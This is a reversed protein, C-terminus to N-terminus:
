RRRRSRRSAAQDHGPAQRRAERVAARAPAAPQRAGGEAAPHVPQQSDGPVHRADGRDAEVRALQRYMAEKQLRETKAQTVAANLDALKQVVINERDELSIADNQERYHQLEDRRGRGGQATRRPARRALRSAEQSAMFQFELNQEIYNKALANAISRRWRRRRVPPLQRRGAPQQPDAHRDLRELFADIARSQAATEDAARRRGDDRRRRQGFSRRDVGAAARGLADGEASVEGSRRRVLEAHGVAEARRDDEAGARPEAPHQVADPLLGGQRRTRTSSRGQLQRREPERVRDPAARASRLDADCHVHLRHRWSCSCSCRRTGDLAAQRAGRAYDLLHPEATRRRIASAAAPRRRCRHPTPRPPTGAPQLGPSHATQRTM